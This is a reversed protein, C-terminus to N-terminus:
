YRGYLIYKVKPNLQIFAYPDPKGPKIVDGAGKKNKFTSGSEIM